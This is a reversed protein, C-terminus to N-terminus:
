AVNLEISDSATSRAVCPIVSPASELMETTIFKTTWCNQAEAIRQGLGTRHRPQALLFFAVHSTRFVWQTADPAISRLSTSISNVFAGREVRAFHQYFLVSQGAAYASQIESRYIYKAAERRNTGVSAVDLGNDPDFFVLDRDSLADMASAFYARRAEHGVPVVTNVYNAGPIGDNDEILSLRRRDPGHIVAQLLDFLQPDFSRWEEAKALYDTMRGDPRGDPPTTMWCIGLRAEGNGALARLIAYKRYDYIDGVYQDKM